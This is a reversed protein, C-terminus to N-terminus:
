SERLDELSNLGFRIYLYDDLNNEKTIKFFQYDLDPKKIPDQRNLQVTQLANKGKQNADATEQKIALSFKVGEALNQDALYHEKGTGLKIFFM